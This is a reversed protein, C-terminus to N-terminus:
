GAMLGCPACRCGAQRGPSAQRSELYHGAWAGLKVGEGISKSGLAFDKGDVPSARTLTAPTMTLIRIPTCHYPFLRYPNWQTLSDWLSGNRGLGQERALAWGESANLARANFHSAPRCRPFIGSLTMRAV